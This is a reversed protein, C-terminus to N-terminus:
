GHDHIYRNIVNAAHIADAKSPISVPPPKRAPARWSNDYVISEDYHGGTLNEGAHQVAVVGTMVPLVQTGDLTAIWLGYDHGLTFGHTSLNKVVADRTARNCYVIPRSDGVNHRAAVWAIAGVPTADGTEVDLVGADAAHSGNVDIHIHPIGPFRAWDEVSWAFRGNAYGAVMLMKALPIDAATTSDRMIRTM